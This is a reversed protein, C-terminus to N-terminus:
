IKALDIRFAPVRPPRLFPNHPPVTTVMRSLPATRGYAPGGWSSRSALPTTILSQGSPRDRDHHAKGTYGPITPRHATPTYQPIIRHHLLTLPTFDEHGNDVNDMHESGGCDSSIQGSKPSTFTIPKRVENKARLQHRNWHHGVAQWAQPRGQYRQPASRQSVPDARKELTTAPPKVRPPLKIDWAVEEYSRQTVSTDFHRRIAMEMWHRPLISTGKESTEREPFFSFFKLTCPIKPAAPRVREESGWGALRTRVGAESMTRSNWTKCQEFDCPPTQPRDRAGAPVTLGSPTHPRDIFPRRLARGAALQGSCPDTLGVDDRLPALPAYCPSRARGEGM